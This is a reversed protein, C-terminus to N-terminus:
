FMLSSGLVFKMASGPAPSVNGPNSPLMVGFQGYLRLAQMLKYGATLDIESGLSSSSPAPNYRYTDMYTWFGAEADFGSVTLGASIGLAFVGVFQQIRAAASTGDLYTYPGAGDEIKSFIGPGSGILANTSMFPAKPTTATTDVGGTYVVHANAKFGLANPPENKFGGDLKFGINTADISQGGATQAGAFQIGLQAALNFTGDESVALDLLYKGGLTILMNVKDSTTPPTGSTVTISETGVLAYARLSMSDGFSFEPVAGIMGQMTSNWPLLLATKALFFKLDIANLDWGFTVADNQFGLLLDSTDGFIQRGMKTYFSDQQYKGYLENVKLSPYTINAYGPKEVDAYIAFGNQFVNAVMARYIPYFYWASTGNANAFTPNSLNFLKFDMLFNYSLGPKMAEVNQAPASGESISKMPVAPAEKAVPVPKAVAKATAAWAASGVLLSLALTSLIVKKMRTFAGKRALHDHPPM